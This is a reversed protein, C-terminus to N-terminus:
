TGVINSTLFVYKKTGRPVEDICISDELVEDPECGCNNQWKPSDIKAKKKTDVCCRLKLSKKFYIPHILFRNADTKVSDSLNIKEM